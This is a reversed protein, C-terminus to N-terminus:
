RDTAGEAPIAELIIWVLRPAGIRPGPRGVPWRCEPLSKEGAKGRPSQPTTEPGDASIFQLILVPHSM